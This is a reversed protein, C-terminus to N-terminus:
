FDHAAPRSFPFKKRLIPLVQLVAGRAPNWPPLNLHRGWRRVALLAGRAPHSAPDQDLDAQHWPLCVALHPHPDLDQHQLTSHPSAFFPPRRRFYLTSPSLNTSSSARSGVHSLTLMNTCVAKSRPGSGRGRWTCLVNGHVAAACTHTWCACYYYFFIAYSHFVNWTRDKKINFSHNLFM